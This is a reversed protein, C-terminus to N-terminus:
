KGKKRRRHDRVRRCNIWKKQRERVKEADTSSWKFLDPQEKFIEVLEPTERLLQWDWLRYYGDSYDAIWKRDEGDIELFVTYAVLDPDGGKEGLQTNLLRKKRYRLFIPKYDRWQVEAVDLEGERFRSWVKIFDPAIQHIVAAPRPPVNVYARQLLGKIRNCLKLPKGEREIFKCCDWRFVPTTKRNMDVLEEILEDLRDFDDKGPMIMEKGYSCPQYCQDLRELLLDLEKVRAM